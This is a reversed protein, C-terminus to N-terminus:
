RNKKRYDWPPKPNPHSWLGFGDTRAEKEFRQWELCVPLTCYKRYVWAFGAKILEGSLNQGRGYVIMSVARGYRDTDIPEVSVVEGFVQDSTFQRAKTGFDQGKEPADIGYIRIREGRGNHMVTITDGDSVGVVKGDWATALSIFFLLLLAIIFTIITKIQYM